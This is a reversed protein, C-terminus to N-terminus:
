WPGLGTGPHLCTGYLSGPRTHIQSGVHETFKDLTVDYGHIAQEIFTIQQESPESSLTWYSAVRSAMLQQIDEKKRKLLKKDILLEIYTRLFSTAYEFLAVNQLSTTKMTAEFINKFFIPDKLKLKINHLKPIFPQPVVIKPVVPAPVFLFFALWLTALQEPSLKHLILSEGKNVIKILENVGAVGKTLFPDKQLKDCSLRFLLEKGIEVIFEPSNSHIFLHFICKSHTPKRFDFM